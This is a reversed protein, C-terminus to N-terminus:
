RRTLHNLTERASQQGSRYPELEPQAALGLPCGPLVMAPAGARAPTDSFSPTDESEDQVFQRSANKKLYGNRQKM